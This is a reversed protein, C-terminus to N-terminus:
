IIHVHVDGASGPGGGVAVGILGDMEALGIAIASADAFAVDGIESMAIGSFDGGYFESELEFAVEGREAREIVDLKTLAERDAGDPGDIFDCATEGDIGSEAVVKSPLQSEPLYEGAEEILAGARGGHTERVTM